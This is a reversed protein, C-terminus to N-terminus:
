STDIYTWWKYCVNREPPPHPLRSATRPHPAPCIHSIETGEEWDQQSDSVARFYYIRFVLFVFLCFVRVAWLNQKAKLFLPTIQWPLFFFFLNLLKIFFSILIDLKEARMAVQCPKPQKRWILFGRCTALTEVLDFHMMCHWTMEIPEPHLDRSWAIGQTQFGWGKARSMGKSEAPIIKFTMEEPFVERVVGSQTLESQKINEHGAWLVRWQQWLFIKKCSERVFSNWKIFISPILFHLIVM